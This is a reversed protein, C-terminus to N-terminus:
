EYNEIKYKITCINFRDVENAIRLRMRQTLEIEVPVFVIFLPQNIIETHNYRFSLQEGESANYVYRYREEVRNYKYGPNIFGANAIYIRRLQTDFRDNLWNEMYIKSGTFSMEYSVKGRYSVLENLLSKFPTYFCKLLALHRSSRLHYPVQFLLQRWLDISFFYNYM